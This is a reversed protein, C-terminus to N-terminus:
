KMESLLEDKQEFTHEIGATTDNYLKRKRKYLIFINENQQATRRYGLWLSDVIDLVVNTVFAREEANAKAICM